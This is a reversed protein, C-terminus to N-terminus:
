GRVVAMRHEADSVFARKVGYQNRLYRGGIVVKVYWGDPLVVLRAKGDKIPRQPPGFVVGQEKLIKRDAADLTDWIQVKSRRGIGFVAFILNEFWALIPM